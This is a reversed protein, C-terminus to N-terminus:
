EAAESYNGLPQLAFRISGTALPKLDTWGLPWGMMWETYLPHPRGGLRAGLTPTNRIFEAPYAGEKANHATPTPLLGSASESTTRALPEQRYLAGDRMLGWRPLTVCFETSDALLSIQATKLSHTAPGYKGLSEQLSVGYAAKKETLDRKSETLKVTQEPAQFTKAHFGARYWTLLEEGRSETLLQLTLGFRSLTLPEMTKDNRSFKAQTPMVNLQALPEGDWSNEESFAEVLARSFLWSVCSGM